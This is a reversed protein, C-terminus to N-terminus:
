SVANTTGKLAKAVAVLRHNRLAHVIETMKEYECKPCLHMGLNGAAHCDFIRADRDLNEVREKLELAAIITSRNAMMKRSLRVRADFAAGPNDSDAIEALGKIAQLLEATPQTM